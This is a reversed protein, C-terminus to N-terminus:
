FDDFGRKQEILFDKLKRLSSEQIQRVRERTIGYKKGIETLTRPTSDQLGFRMKLVGAERTSLQGLMDTINDRTVEDSVLKSPPISDVDEIVKILESIGEDDIPASLSSPIKDMELLERVEAVPMRLARALEEPRAPRGLRQTLDAEKKRVKQIKEMMYVPIRIMKGQNAVARLIFQRIWWAAYTSLKNGMSVDFKEVARMLGLNGEEILDLLPLGLYTYRRAIKVVLRLNAKIMEQRAQEDGAAAKKALAAEEERTLLPIEGIDRLYLQITDKGAGM